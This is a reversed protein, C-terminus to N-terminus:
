KKESLKEMSKLNSSSFVRKEGLEPKPVDISEVNWINEAYDTISRDSSFYGMRCISNLCKSEWKSKDKYDREVREQTQLYAYFDHCVLYYDNENMLGNLYESFFSANGFKGSLITEFVRRLRKGAYDKKGSKMETRIKDIEDVTKGFFYINEEGIKEGIEINAGDRTGIILSGTMAFKMNSTGSAETGATSIHESLDAAPIIIQAVSVKYDPLFIVKYYDRVDPDNNIVNGIMGILRIVNKATVYGPAAKGGFFSIRKVQAEREQPTMEKLTLYKHVCYLANMLQRKYEHIRKVMVDFMFDPSIEVECHTKVWNCLRKKAEYKATRLKELFEDLVGENQLDEPLTELLTLDSLWDENKSYTTLLSSLEPFACHIWRRPTVGNTVNKFKKPFIEYFEKFLSTKLLESHIRAVGNVCHSGVIALNAMRIMKSNGEEIMSIRSIKDANNPFKKRAKELFIHNIMYILELHRPLLRGFLDVSWKELAEPLVTHNTYAFTQNVIDFAEENDLGHYDILIRMLEPIAVTPHTDNLQVANKSPFERWPLKSRLFRRVIDQVTASVFFYQQKLRLEKGAYTSDNPYLVSTIYSATDREEMASLFDGKNFSEFDFEEDPFSKWLRLTNAMFTNWGPIMTDYAIAIVENGGEWVRFKKGNRMEDRCNGYFRVKYKVDLRQIEWANGKTLWYDPFEKQQFNEIAQRFIGYDYRIGYGWAPYNLTTLSDMFCAALRGLGGNGLAPDNERDYIDELRIGFDMIAEKYDQEMNMNILANQLLRGLLFEISLYYVRKPESLRISTQTDNWSELLRDRVSISTGTYLIDPTLDFRTRALSFEVHHIINRQISEKDRPLYTQMLSWVKANKNEDESIQFEPRLLTSVEKLNKYISGKRKLPVKHTQKDDETEM